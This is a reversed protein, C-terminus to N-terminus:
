YLSIQGPEPSIFQIDPYLESLADSTSEDCVYVIHVCPLTEIVNISEDCSLSILSIEFIDEQGGIILELNDCDDYQICSFCEYKGGNELSYNAIFGIIKDGQATTYRDNKPALLEIMVMKGDFLQCSYDNIMKRVGEAIEYPSLQATKKDDNIYSRMFVLTWNIKDEDRADQCPELFKIYDGYVALIEREIEEVGEHYEIQRTNYKDKSCSGILAICILCLLISIIRKM